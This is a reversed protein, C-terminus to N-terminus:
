ISVAIWRSYRLLPSSRSCVVKMGVSRRYPKLLLQSNADFSVCEGPLALVIRSQAIRVAITEGRGRNTQLIIDDLRRSRGLWGDARNDPDKRRRTGTIETVRARGAVEAQRGVPIKGIFPRQVRIDAHCNILVIGLAGIGGTQKCGRQVIIRALDHVKEDIGPKLIGFLLIPVGRQDEVNPCRVDDPMINLDVKADSCTCGACLGRM